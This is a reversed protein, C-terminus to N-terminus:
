DEDSSDPASPPLHFDGDGLTHLTPSVGFLRLLDENSTSTESIPHTHVNSNTPLSAREPTQQQSRDIDSKAQQSPGESCCWAPNDNELPTSLEFQSRMELADERVEEDAGEEEEEEAYFRAHNFGNHVFTRATVNTEKHEIRPLNGDRELLSSRIANSSENWGVEEDGDDQSRASCHSM